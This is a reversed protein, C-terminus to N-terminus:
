ECDVHISTKASYENMCVPEARTQDEVWLNLAEQSYLRSRVAGYQQGLSLQSPFHFHSFNPFRKGFSFGSSTNPKGGPRVCDSLCLGQSGSPLSTVVWSHLRAGGTGKMEVSLVAYRLGPSAGKAKWLICEM